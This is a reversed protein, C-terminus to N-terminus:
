RTFLGVLEDDDHMTWLRVGPAALGTLDLAHRSQPPATPEMERLHEALFQALLPDTLDARAIRRCM